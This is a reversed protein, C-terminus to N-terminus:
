EVKVQAESIMRKWRSAETRLFTRFSDSNTDNVPEFGLESLRRIIEPDSLAKNVDATLKSVVAPPTGAPALMGFWGVADIGKVGAEEFTPVEPLLPSRKNAVVALPAIEGARATAAGAGVSVFTLDIQGGLLDSLALAEGKYPVHLLNLGQSRKLTEGYIHYSSGIGFSGYSLSKNPPKAIAIVDALEKLNSDRRAALFVPAFAVQAIPAFDSELDYPVTSFIAPAQVLATFAFLLRHGTADGGRAVAGAGLMGTAGPRNEVVVPKGWYDSLKNSLMRVVVDPGGGPPGPMVITVTRQPYVSVQASTQAYAATSAAVAGTVVAIRFTRLFFNFSDPEHRAPKTPIRYM